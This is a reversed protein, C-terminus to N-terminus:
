CYFDVPTDLVEHAALAPNHAEVLAGTSTVCRMREFRLWLTEFDKWTKRQPARIGPSMGVATSALRYGGRRLPANGVEDLGHGVAVCREERVECRALM